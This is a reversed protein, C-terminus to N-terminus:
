NKSDRREMERLLGLMERNSGSLALWKMWNESNPMQIEGSTKEYTDILNQVVGRFWVEVAQHEDCYLDNEQTENDCDDSCCKESMINRM